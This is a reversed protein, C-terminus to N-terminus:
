GILTFKNEGAHRVGFLACFADLQEQTFRKPDNERRLYVTRELGLLGAVDQQRMGSNVRVAKATITRATTESM